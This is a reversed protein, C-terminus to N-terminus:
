LYRLIPGEGRRRRWENTSTLIEPCGRIVWNWRRVFAETVEWSGPDEPEGWVLLMNDAVVTGNGSGNGNGFELVDACFEDEDYGHQEGAQARILNDRMAPYPFFDLWPHHPLSCQTLTPRLSTPLSRTDQLSRGPPCPHQQNFPSLIDLDCLGDFLMGLTAMNYLFARYVNVKTLTPLHSISPTNTTYSHYAAATFSALFTRQAQEKAKVRSEADSYSNDQSIEQRRNPSHNELSDSAIASARQQKRQRYTRQSLRNQRRRREARDIIGSWDDEVSAGPALKSSLSILKLETNVNQM